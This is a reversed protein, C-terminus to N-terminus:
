IDQLVLYLKGASFYPTLEDGVTNIAEGLNVPTGLGGDEIPAYYIDYGGKGGTMDSAFFLVDKGYAEGVAPHRIVYSGLGEVQSAPGWSDGSKESKYLVSSNIKNSTFESRTFYMTNGDKSLAVNGNHTGPRNINSNLPTGKNWTGDDTKTARYIKAHYDSNSGDVVVVADSVMAGYYMENENGYVPSFDTYPSNINDGADVVTVDSNQTMENALKVGNLEAAALKKITMDDSDSIFNQLVAKAKDLKGNMKLVRGYHFAANPFMGTKDSEVTKAFWTEANSLDKLKLYVDAVRGMVYTNEPEAELAKNYWDLANYYDGLTYQENAVEIKKSTKLKGGYPQANMGMTMAVLVTLIATFKKM